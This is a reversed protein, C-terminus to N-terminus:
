KRERDIEGCASCIWFAGEKEYTLEKKKCHSCKRKTQENNKM